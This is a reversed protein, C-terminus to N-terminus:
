SRQTVVLQEEQSLHAGCDYREDAAAEGALAEGSVTVPLLLPSSLRYTLPAEVTRFGGSLALASNVM